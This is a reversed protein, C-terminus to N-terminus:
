NAYIRLVGLLKIQDQLTLKTSTSRLNSELLRISENKAPRSDGNLALVEWDFFKIEQGGSISGSAVTLGHYQDPTVSGYLDEAERIMTVTVTVLPLEPRTTDLLLVFDGEKIKPRM